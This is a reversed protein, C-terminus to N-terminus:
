EAGEPRANRARETTISAKAIDHKVACFPILDLDGPDFERVPYDLSHVQRDSAHRAPIATDATM